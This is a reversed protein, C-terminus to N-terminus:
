LLMQSSKGGRFGDVDVDADVAVAVDVDADVAAAVDESVLLMLM